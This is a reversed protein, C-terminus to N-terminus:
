TINGGVLNGMEFDIFRHLMVSGGDTFFIEATCLFPGYAATLIPFGRSRDSAVFIRHEWGFGGFYYEVRQVCLLTGGQAPVIYILLDYLQGSETSPFLKHVLMVRRTRQYYGERETRRKKNEDERSVRAEKAKEMQSPLASVVAGVEINWVKLSAGQRIRSLIAGFLGRIERRLLCFIFTLFIVWVLTPLLNAIAQRIM